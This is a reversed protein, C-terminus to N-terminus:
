FLSIGLLQMIPVSLCIGAIVCVLTTPHFPDLLMENPSVKM